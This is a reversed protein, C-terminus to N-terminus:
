TRRNDRMALQQRLRSDAQMAERERVRAAEENMAASTPANKTALKDAKVQAREASRRANAERRYARGIVTRKVGCDRLKSAHARAHAWADMKYGRESLRSIM